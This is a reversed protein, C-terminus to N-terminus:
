AAAEGGLHKRLVVLVADVDFTRGHIAECAEALRVVSGVSANAQNVLKIAQAQFDDISFLRIATLQAGDGYIAEEGAQSVPSKGAMIVAQRFSSAVWQDFEAVTMRQRVQRVLEDHSIKGGADDIIERVIAGLTLHTLQDLGFPFTPFQGTAATRVQRRHFINGVVFGVPDTAADLANGIDARVVEGTTTDVLAM